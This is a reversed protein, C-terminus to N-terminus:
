WEYSLVNVIASKYTLNKEKKVKMTNDRYTWDKTSRDGLDWMVGTPWDQSINRRIFEASAFVPCNWGKSAGALGHRAFLVESSGGDSSGKPNFKHILDIIIDVGVNEKGIKKIGFVDYCVALYAKCGKIDVIRTYGSEESVLSGAADIYGKEGDTPFFKRGIGKIGESTVSLALQDMNDRCDVGYCVNTRCEMIDLYESIDNAEDKIVEPEFYEFKLFGAPLIIVDHESGIEDIIYKLLDKRKKNGLKYVNQLVCTAVNIFSREDSSNPIVEFGLGQLYENAEKGGSFIGPQLEEGNSYKNSISIVLKPPYYRGSYIMYYKTSQRNSPIGNEDLYQIAKLVHNYLINNPIM